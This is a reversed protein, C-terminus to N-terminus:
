WFLVQINRVRPIGKTLEVAVLNCDRLSAIEVQDMSASNTKCKMSSVVLVCVYLQQKSSRCLTFITYITPATVRSTRSSTSDDFAYCWM